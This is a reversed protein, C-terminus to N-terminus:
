RFLQLALGWRVGRDSVVLEKVGAWRVIRELLTAGVPIVDARQPELGPIAKRHELPVSTLRATTAAVEAASLHLGHIRSADYPDVCRAIAAVTTVTGAIGVWIADPDPRAARALEGDVHDAIERLENASPPDTRVFREFLRVSGIDLSIRQEVQAGGANLRGSILETSGGGIDFVQVPGDPLELGLLGGSFTLLAEEDGSVVRPAMGLISRSREMFERAAPDGGQEADRLASTGVVDLADVRYSALEIAYRSLCALTRAVAEPHLVRDRDVGQGLRTITARESISVVRGQEDREAVLLLTTNTGIDICAVRM